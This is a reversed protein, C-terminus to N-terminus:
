ECAEDVVQNYRVWPMRLQQAMLMEMSISFLHEPHYPAEPDNGPEEAEMEEGAAKRAEWDVDFATIAEEAIGRDICQALETLEHYAVLFEARWDGMDTVRIQWTGDEDVWYDGATKYRMASQPITEVNIKM